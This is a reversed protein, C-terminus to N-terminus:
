GVCLLDAEDAVSLVDGLGLGEFLHIRLFVHAGLRAIGTMLRVM